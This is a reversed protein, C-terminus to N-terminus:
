AGRPMCSVCVHSSIAMCGESRAAPRVGVFGGRGGCRFTSAPRPDTAPKPACGPYNRVLFECMPAWYLAGGMLHGHLALVVRTAERVEGHTAVSLNLAGGEVPVSVRGWAVARMQGRRHEVTLLEEQFGRLGMQAEVYLANSLAFEVQQGLPAPCSILQDRGGNRTTSNALPAAMQLALNSGSPKTIISAIRGTGLNSGADRPDSTAADGVSGAVDLWVRTLPIHIQKLLPGPTPVTLPSHPTSLALPASLM